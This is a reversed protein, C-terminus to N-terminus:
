GHQQPAAMVPAGDALFQLGSTIIKEGPNVGQLVVYDNGILEGLQLRRQRAVMKNDNGEAIFAFFQGNIRSVALVPILVQKRTGWVIRARAFQATRLPVKSQNIRAKILITQTQDNVQPSIFTIRSEAIVNNQADIIEVLKGMSLQPSKEVPVDVYAELDGPQDITTLVTTPTVRDGVHVPIDGVIGATLAKVHFYQLQVQQERVQADLARLDANAADYATQAQDLDQKSVVGAAYLKKVRELQQSAYRLNAEKSARSAEQSGVTAQQKLPDIVMLLTGAAVRDGSKVNIHTIQGDVQPSITTSSRSKLTAVYETTDNVSQPQAVLMQVPMAQGGAGAPKASQKTGCGLTWTSFCLALALPLLRSPDVRLGTNNM